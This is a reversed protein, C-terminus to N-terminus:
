QRKIEDTTRMSFRLAQWMERAPMRESGFPASQAGTESVIRDVRFGGYASNYDLTYADVDNYSTAQRFGHAKCWSQFLGEVDKRSIRM